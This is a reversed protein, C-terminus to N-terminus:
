DLFAPLTRNLLRWPLALAGTKRTMTSAKAMVSRLDRLFATGKLTRQVVISLRDRPDMELSAPSGRCGPLRYTHRVQGAALERLLATTTQLPIALEAAKPWCPPQAASCSSDAVTRAQGRPRCAM